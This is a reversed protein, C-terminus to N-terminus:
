RAESDLLGERRIKEIVAQRVVESTSTYNRRAITAIAAAIKVGFRASIKESLQERM